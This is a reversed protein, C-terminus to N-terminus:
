QLLLMKKTIVKDNARIQYLYVGSSVPLNDNDVGNWIVSHEGAPKIDNVLTKILQGRINYITLSVNSIDALQYRITTSPGRGAGSPNFPNPYNKLQFNFGPVVNDDNETVSYEYM